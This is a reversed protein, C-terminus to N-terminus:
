LYCNRYNITKCPRLLLLDDGTFTIGSLDAEIARGTRSDTVLIAHRNCLAAVAAPDDASSFSGATLTRSACILIALMAVARTTKM